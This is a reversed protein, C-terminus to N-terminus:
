ILLLRKGETKNPLLLVVAYDRTLQNTGWRGGSESVTSSKMKLM